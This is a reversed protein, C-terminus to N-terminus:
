GGLMTLIDVAYLGATCLGGLALLVVASKPMTFAARPCTQIGFWKARRQFGKLLVFALLAIIAVELVMGAAPIWGGLAAIINEEMLAEAALTEEDTAGSTVYSLMILASNYVTHFIMGTYLSDTWVVVLGLVIGGFIEGPMGILSGHILAFLVATMLVARKTGGREFASLLMGRFLLEECVAAIVGGSIVSRMLEGTNAPRVYTDTFVNFGLKQWLAMWLVSGEYIAWMCALALVATSLLTGPPVPNLRLGDMVGKKRSAWLVIPVFLMLGYYLLNIALNLWEASAGPMLGAIHPSLFSVAWLGAAALLYFGSAATLEPRVREPRTIKQFLHEM